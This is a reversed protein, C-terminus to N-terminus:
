RESPRECLRELLAILEDDELNFLDRDECAKVILQGLRQHRAREWAVLLRELAARKQAPKIARGRPVGLTGTRLGEQFAVARRENEPHVYMWAGKLRIRRVWPPDMPPETNAVTLTVRLPDRQARKRAQALTLVPDPPTDFREEAAESDNLTTAIRFPGRVHFGHFSVKNSEDGPELEFLRLGGDSRTQVTLRDWGAAIRGETIFPDLKGLLDIKPEVAGPGYARLRLSVHDARSRGVRYELERGRGM